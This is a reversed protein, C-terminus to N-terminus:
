RRGRDRGRRDLFGQGATIGEMTPLPFIQDDNPSTSIPPAAESSPPEQEQPGSAADRAQRPDETM